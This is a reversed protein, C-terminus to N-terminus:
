SARYGIWLVLAFMVWFLWTPIFLGKADKKM